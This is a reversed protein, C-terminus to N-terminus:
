TAMGIFLYSAAAQSGTVVWALVWYIAAIPVSLFLSAFLKSIAEPNDHHSLHVQYLLKSGLSSRAHYHFIFRHLGYEILGWSLVGCSVLIVIHWASLHERASLVGLCLAVATYFYLPTFQRWGVITM